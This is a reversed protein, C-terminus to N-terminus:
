ESLLNHGSGVTAVTASGPEGAQTQEVKPALEGQGLLRAFLWRWASLQAATTPTTRWHIHCRQESQQM